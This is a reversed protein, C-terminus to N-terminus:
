DTIGMKEKIANYDYRTIQFFQEPTINHYRTLLVMDSLSYVGQNWKYTITNDEIEKDM